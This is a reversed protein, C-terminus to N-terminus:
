SHKLIFLINVLFFFNEADIRLSKTENLLPCPHGLGVM